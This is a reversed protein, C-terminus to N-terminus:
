AADDAVLARLRGSRDAAALEMFGGVLEDGVLIQPFSMMGTQRALEARGDPDRALNREEYDLGRADLLAKARVCFSCADTSYLTIKRM